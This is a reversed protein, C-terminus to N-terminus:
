SVCYDRSPTEILTIQTQKKEQDDVTPPQQPVGDREQFHCCFMNIRRARGKIHKSAGEARVSQKGATM